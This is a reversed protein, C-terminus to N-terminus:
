PADRRVPPLPTEMLMSRLARGHARCLRVEITGVRIRVGDNESCGPVNCTAEMRGVPGIKIGEDESM